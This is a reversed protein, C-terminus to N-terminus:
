HIRLNDDVRPRSEVWCDAIRVGDHDISEEKARNRQESSGRSIMAEFAMGLPNAGDARQGIM